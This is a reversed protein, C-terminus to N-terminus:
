TKRSFPVVILTAKVLHASEQVLVGGGTELDEARFPNAAILSLMSLTKGLGM